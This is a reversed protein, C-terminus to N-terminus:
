RQTERALERLASIYCCSRHAAIPTRFGLQHRHLRSSSIVFGPSGPETQHTETRNTKTQHFTPMLTNKKMGINATFSLQSCLINCHLLIDRCEDV